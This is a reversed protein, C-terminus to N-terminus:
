GASPRPYRAGTSAQRRAIGALLLAQGNREVACVSARTNSSAIEASVRALEACVEPIRRVAGSGDSAITRRVGDRLRCYMAQSITSRPSRTCSWPPEGIDPEIARDLVVVARPDMDVGRGQHRLVGIGSSVHRVSATAYL